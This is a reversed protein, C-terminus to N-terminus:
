QYEEEFLSPIVAESESTGWVEHVTLSSVNKASLSRKRQQQDEIRRETIVTSVNNIVLKIVLCCGGNPSTM